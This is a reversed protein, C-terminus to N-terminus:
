EIEGLVKEFRDLYKPQIKADPMLYNWHESFPRATMHFTGYGLLGLGARLALRVRLGLEPDVRDLHGASPTHLSTSHALFRRLVYGWVWRLASWSAWNPEM